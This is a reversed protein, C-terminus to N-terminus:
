VFFKRSKGVVIRTLAGGRSLLFMPGKDISGQGKSLLFMTQAMSGPRDADVACIAHVGRPTGEMAALPVCPWLGHACVRKAMAQGTARVGPAMCQGRPLTNRDVSATRGGAERRRAGGTWHTVRNQGDGMRGRVMGMGTPAGHDVGRVM